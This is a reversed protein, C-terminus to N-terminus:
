IVLHYIRKQQYIIIPFIIICWIYTFRCCTKFSLSPLWESSWVLSKISSRLWNCTRAPIKPIGNLVQIMRTRPSAMAEYGMSSDSIYIMTYRHQFSAGRMKIPGRKVLPSGQFLGISTALWPRRPFHIAEFTGPLSTQQGPRSRACSPSPWLPTVM